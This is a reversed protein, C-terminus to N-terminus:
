NIPSTLTHVATHIRERTTPDEVTGTDSILSRGVPINLCADEIIAAGTYALVTRLSEYTAAARQPATSPNIWGVPKGSMVTDGITWELLNKLAGPMAGAYEPTCFLLAESTRIAARLDAVSSPPGSQELDPNFHPLHTLGAYISATWHSALTATATKLVATNISGERTSGSILFLSKVPEAAM